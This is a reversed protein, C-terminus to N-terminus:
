ARPHAQAWVEQLNQATVHTYIQTTTVSAHGLLEQVVRVDAGGELLHTAFSHRLTHPSIEKELGARQAAQQVVLWASQRSLPKARTNLFLAATAGKSLQPRGRVLYHDLATHAHSGLPVYRQKNGKGTIRIMAQGSVVDDVHLALLESIRAGSGYLLELLARDRLQVATAADDLPCSEILAQVEAVTLTDPLHQAMKAPRVERAVDHSVLGETLAFKHLGRVVVLARNVSSVQLARRHQEPDGQRLWQVFHTIHQTTVAAIDEVGQQQLFTVYRQLDRRYNSLTNPSVGREVSLHTLWLEIATSVTTM